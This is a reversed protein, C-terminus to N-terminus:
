STGETPPHLQRYRLYSYVVPVGAALAIVVIFVVLSWAASVLGGLVIILGALVWLRGALRHTDRWVQDDSLTWPTRIGVFWNSRFRPMYNGLIVFLLGLGALFFRTELLMQNRLVSYLVVGHFYVFVLPLLIRILRYTDGFRAVNARRPDIRPLVLMLLYIGLATLPMLFAGVPRSMFDDPRGAANWHTPMPDPLSPYVLATGVFALALGLWAPWERKWEIRM